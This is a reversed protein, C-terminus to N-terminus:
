IILSSDNSSRVSMESDNLEGEAPPTSPPLQMKAVASKFKQQLIQSPQGQNTKKDAETRGTEALKNLDITAPTENGASRSPILEVAPTSTIPTRNGDTTPSRPDEEEGSEIILPSRDPAELTLIPPAKGRVPTECEESLVRRRIGEEVVIPTREVGGPSRPDISLTKMKAQVPTDGESGESNKSVAIPTRDMGETASRPDTRLIRTKFKDRFSPRARAEEPPVKNKEQEAKQIETLEEWNKSTFNGM